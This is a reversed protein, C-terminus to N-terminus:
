IKNVLGELINQLELIQRDDVDAFAEKLSHQHLEELKPILELAKDSLRLVKKRRCKPDPGSKMLGKEEMSRIQRSILAKDVDLAEALENQSIDRMKSILFLIHYEILSIQYEQLVRSQMRKIHKHLEGLDGAIRAYHESRLM